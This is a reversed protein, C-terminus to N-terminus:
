KLSTKLERIQGNVKQCMFGNGAYQYRRAQNYLAQILRLKEISTKM